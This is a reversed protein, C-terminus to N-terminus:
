KSVEKVDKWEMLDFNNDTEIIISKIENGESRESHEHHEGNFFVKVNKFCGKLEITKM